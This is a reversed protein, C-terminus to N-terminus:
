LSERERLPTFPVWITGNILALVSWGFWLGVIGDLQYFLDSFSMRYKETFQTVITNIPIINIQTINSVVTTDSKIVDNFANFLQIECLAEYSEYCRQYNLEIKNGSLKDKKCRTYNLYPSDM